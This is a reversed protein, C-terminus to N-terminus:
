QSRYAKLVEQIDAFKVPKAFVRNFGANMARRHQDSDVFGTIAILPIHKFEPIERWEQAFDYGDKQGPLRLDCFVVDPKVKRASEFGSRVNFAVETTCGMVELLDCFLRALDQNDEIILVQM